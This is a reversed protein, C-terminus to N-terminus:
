NEREYVIEIPDIVNPAGMGIHEGYLQIFKWLQFRTYGDEDESPFSPKLMERGYVKNLEDYQHYYIEKGLDTLKVKVWENLNIHLPESQASPKYKNCACINDNGNGNGFIVDKSGSPCYPYNHKCSNCLHVQNDPQTSPLNKLAELALYIECENERCEEPYLECFPKLRCFEMLRKVAEKNTM